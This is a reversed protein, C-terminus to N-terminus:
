RMMAGSHWSAPPNHTLPAPGRLSRAQMVALASCVTTQPWCCCHLGLRCAHWALCRHGTPTRTQRVAGAAQRVLEHEKAKAVIRQVKARAGLTAWWRDGGAHALVRDLVQLLRLLLLLLSAPPYPRLGAQSGRGLM